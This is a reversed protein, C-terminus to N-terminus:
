GPVDRFLYIVSEIPETWFRKKNKEDNGESANVGDEPAEDTEVAYVGTLWRNLDIDACRKSCFPKYRMVAEKGCVPCKLGSVPMDAVNNTEENM